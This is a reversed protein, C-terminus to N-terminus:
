SLSLALVKVKQCEIHYSGRYPHRIFIEMIVVKQPVYKLLLHPSKSLGYVMIYGGKEEIHWDVIPKLVQVAVSSLHPCECEENTIKECFSAFYKDCISQDYVHLPEAILAWLSSLVPSTSGRACVIWRINRWVFSHCM